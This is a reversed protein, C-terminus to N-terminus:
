SGPEKRLDKRELLVKAWPLEFSGVHMLSMRNRVQESLVVHVDPM